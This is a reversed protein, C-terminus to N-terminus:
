SIQKDNYKDFKRKDPAHNHKSSKYNRVIHRNNLYLKSATVRCQCSNRESLWGKGGNKECWYYLDNKNYMHIDM